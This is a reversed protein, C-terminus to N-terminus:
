GPPMVALLMTHYTRQQRQHRSAALCRGNWDSYRPRTPLRLSSKGCPRPCLPMATKSASRWPIMQPRWGDAAKTIARVQNKVQQFQAPTMLTGFYPQLKMAAIAEANDPQLRLVTLWHM